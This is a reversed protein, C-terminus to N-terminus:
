DDSPFRRGLATAPNGGVLTNSPVDHHVISGACAVADTHMWVGPCVFARAGVWVGDELTIPSHRYDMTPSRYDHNAACLFADQSLCCNSGIVVKEFNVIQVGEGIWVHDGIEIKWPFYIDVRPKLYLSKGVKAGFARLIAVKVFSPFPFASRFLLIKVLYWLIFTIKSAGRDFGRCADFEENRVRSPRKSKVQEVPRDLMQGLM